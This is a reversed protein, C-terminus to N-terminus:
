MEAERLRLMMEKFFIGGGDMALEGCLTMM